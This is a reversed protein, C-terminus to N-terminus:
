TKRFLCPLAVVHVVFVFLLFEVVVVRKLLTGGQLFAIKADWM